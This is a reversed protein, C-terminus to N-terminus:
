KVPADDITLLGDGEEELFGEGEEASNGDDDTELLDDETELLGEDETELFSEDETEFVSEDDETELLGKDETELLGKDETELLSADATGLFGDEKEVVEDSTEEPSDDDNLLFGHRAALFPQLIHQINRSGFLCPTDINRSETTFDVAKRVSCAQPPSRM